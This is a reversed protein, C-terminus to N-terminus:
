RRGRVDRHRDIFDSHKLYVKVTDTSISKGTKSQYETSVYEYLETLNINPYKNSIDSTINLVEEKRREKSSRSVNNTSDISEKRHKKKYHAYSEARIGGLFLEVVEEYSFDQKLAIRNAVGILIYIEYGVGVIEPRREKEGRAMLFLDLTLPIGQFEYYCDIRVKPGLGIPLAKQIRKVWPSLLPLELVDPMAEFTEKIFELREEALIRNVEANFSPFMKKIDGDKGQRHELFYKSM